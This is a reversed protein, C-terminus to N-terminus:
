YDRRVLGDEACFVEERRGVVVEVVVGECVPGRRRRCGVGEEDLAEHLGGGEM